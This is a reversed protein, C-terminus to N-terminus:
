RNGDATTNKERGRGADSSNSQKITEKYTQHSFRVIQDLYYRRDAQDAQAAQKETAIAEELFGNAWYATALTDLIFGKNPQFLVASRALTLAQIPDRLGLDESTLFLWALKNMIEPNAPELALARRYAALARIEKKQTVMMDGALQLWLAKDPEKQIKQLIMAAVKMEQYKKSLNDIPLQRVATITIACVLLYSLLSLFVKRHHRKIWTPDKECKELYNIREGIGFHHWSPQDRIDGSMIAIKEFASILARSNGLVPFVHLDAEREFNRLFYGFIYRFYFVMLLFMPVVGFFALLTEPPINGKDMMSSFLDSSFLLYIAPEALYGTLISFGGILFIYLLLHMRKVHGIEHAMVAELEEISMSEILAPTILIYRLGPVIGMVGATLVRGEFLPWLYLEASLNQKKCFATLRRRLDGDQLKNCGWLRRVLPPFFLLIFLFFIGLSLLNGWESHLVKQTAPWPLFAVVDTLVSLVIWPLVIALNAKINVLLFTSPSYERGFVKQYSKRAAIWMVGFFFVFLGLGAINMLSPLTDHFSLWSLYFKADCLYLTLGFFVVALFSVKKEASFYGASHLATRHNFFKGALRYYVVVILIFLLLSNWGSLLPIEPIRDMSFLFIATLFFLLNTYILAIGSFLLITLLYEGDWFPTRRM